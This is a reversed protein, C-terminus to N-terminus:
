QLPQISRLLCPTTSNLCNSYFSTLYNLYLSKDQGENYAYNYICKQKIAESVITRGDTTGFKGPTACYKGGGLCNGRIAVNETPDYLPHQYTVYHVRLNAKTGLEEQYYKFESMLKYVMENDATTYLDYNVTNNPHEM